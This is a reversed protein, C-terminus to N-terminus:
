RLTPWSQQTTNRNNHPIHPPHPPTTNYSHTTHRAHIALPKHISPATPNNGQLLTTSFLRCTILSSPSHSPLLSARHEGNVECSLLCDDSCLIWIRDPLCTHPLRWYPQLARWRPCTMAFAPATTMERRVAVAVAVAVTSVSTVRLLLLVRVDECRVACVGRNNSRAELTSRSGFREIMWKVVGSGGGIVRTQRRAQAWIAESARRGCTSM